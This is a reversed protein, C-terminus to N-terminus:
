RFETARFDRELQGLNKQLRLFGMQAVSQGRLIRQLYESFSNETPDEGLSVLRTDERVGLLYHFFLALEVFRRQTEGSSSYEAISGASLVDLLRVPRGSQIRDHQDFWWSKASVSLFSFYSALGEEVWLPPSGNFAHDLFQHTAAHTVHIMLLAENPTHFTVVPRAENGAFYFSGYFSSHEDANEGYANYQDITPCIWVQLPRPPEYDTGLVYQFQDYIWDLQRALTVAQYRTTATRVEYRGNSVVWPDEWSSHDRYLDEGVALQTEVKAIARELVRDYIKEIGRGAEAPVPRLSAAGLLLPTLLLIRRADMTTAM